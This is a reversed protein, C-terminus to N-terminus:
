WIKDGCMFLVGCLVLTVVITLALIAFTYIASKNM